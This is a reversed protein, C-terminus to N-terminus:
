LVESCKDTDMFVFLHPNRLWARGRDEDGGMLRKINIQALYKDCLFDIRKMNQSRPASNIAFPKM